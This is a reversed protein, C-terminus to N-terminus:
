AKILDAAKEAVAYVTTMSHSAPHIPMISADVVRLGKIGYVRLNSDVVGGDERAGLKATGCPHFLTGASGRIFADLDADATVNAGPAVEFPQLAAIAPTEHIRRAFRVGERLLAVDLPNRLFASDAVPADFVNSSTAKVSGRSFPKQLGVVIVDDAWIYEIIASERDSLQRALEGHLAQYGQAVAAPTDPLLHASPDQAQAEAQIAATANSIVSLPLFHLFDATSSTLPGKRQADYQARADAAFSANSTLAGQVLPANGVTAQDAATRM